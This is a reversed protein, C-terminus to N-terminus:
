LLARDCRALAVLIFLGRSISEAPNNQKGGKCCVYLQHQMVTYIFSMADKRWVRFGGVMLGRQRERGSLARVIDEKRWEWPLEYEGAPRVDSEPRTVPIWVGERDGELGGEYPTDYINLPLPKGDEGKREKQGRDLLVCVKLLDKSGRRRVETPLFPM